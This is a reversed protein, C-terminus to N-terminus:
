KDAFLTWELFEVICAPQESIHRAPTGFAFFLKTDRKVAQVNSSYISGSAQAAVLGRGISQEGMCEQEVPHM